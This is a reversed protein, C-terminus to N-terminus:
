SKFHFTPEQYLVSVYGAVLCQVHCVLRRRNRGRALILLMIELHKANHFMYFLISHAGCYADSFALIAEGM